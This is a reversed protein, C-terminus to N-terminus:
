RPLNTLFDSLSDVAARNRYLFPGEGALRLRVRERLEGDRALKVALRVYEAQSTAVLEGLGLCRLVGSAFRGRLFRGEYAVIPLRCEVAQMVTNFGSFGLTDLYVDARRMLGHFGELSLWPLLLLYQDPDLGASRFSTRLRELVRTTLEPQTSEFLVICCRHLARAIEVLVSDHEPAYKYPTGASVLVPVGAPLEPREHAPSEGIECPEYCCGIGPLRVLKESYYQESGTSDFAESSLFYDMTALGTTEPHGWAAIQHRALRLSALQYTRGDMGIEPYILADLDRRCIEGVCERLSRASCDVWDARARALDTAPGRVTGVDLVTTHIRDRDLCELWGKLLARFVSHEYAHATVFGLRVRRDPAARPPPMVAATRSAWRAMLRTALSGVARTLERNDRDQYALYFPPARAVIDPENLAPAASIWADFRRLEMELELRSADVEARSSPIVPIATVLGGVRAVANEPELELASRYSELAAPRDAMERCAQGRGCLAVTSQPRLALARDYAAVAAGCRHLALLAAARNLQAEFLDAELRLAQDCEGLADAARGLALQAVACNAHLVARYGDLSLARQYCALAERPRELQLLAMGCGAHADASDPVLQAARGYSALASAPSGIEILTDALLCLARVSDADHALVREYSACAEAFRGLGRLAAARNLLAPVSEPQLALAREACALATDFRKLDVLVAGLNVYAAAVDPRVGLARQLQAAAEELAGTQAALVGGLHLAEFHDPDRQLLQDLCARAEALRGERLLEV